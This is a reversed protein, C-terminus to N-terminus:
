SCSCEVSTIVAAEGTVCAIEAYDELIVNSVGRSSGSVMDEGHLEYKMGKTRVGCLIESLPILSVPCGAKGEFSCHYEHTLVEISSTKGVLSVRMGMCAYRRLLLINTMEHDIRGGLAGYVYCRKIGSRFTMKLAIDLDTEDKEQPFEVIRVGEARAREVLSPAASDFDGVALDPKMGARYCYELGGDACVIMGAAGKIEESPMTLEEECGAFLVATKDSNCM